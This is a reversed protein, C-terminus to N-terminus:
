EGLLARNVANRRRFSDRHGPPVHQRMAHEVWAAGAQRAAEAADLQGQNRLVEAGLRWVLPLYADAPQRGPVAALLERVLPLARAGEGARWWAQAERLRAALRFNHLGAQAARRAADACTKVAEDPPLEQALGLELSLVLPLSLRAAEQRLPALLAASPQGAHRLLLGQAMAHGIRSRADAAPEPPLVRAAAEADGLELWLGVLATRTPPLLQAAESALVQDFGELAERYRGLRWAMLSQGHRLNIEVLGQTPGSEDRWRLADLFLERAAACDGRRSTLSALNSTLVMCEAADDLQQALALAQQVADIAPEVRSVLALASGRATFCQMRLRPGGDVALEREVADLQALSEDARGAGALAHARMLALQLSTTRQAGTWARPAGAIETDMAVVAADFRYLLTLARGHAFTAQLRQAATEAREVLREARALVQAPPEVELAAEAASALAEFAGDVRGAREHADAAADFWAVAQVRANLRLAARAARESAAAAEPWCAAQRWHSAVSADAVGRKEGWAAISAHLSRAVPEPVLELVPAQLTAHAIGQADLLRAQQLLAWHEGLAVQTDGMLEHALEFPLPRGALAAIKLLQRPSEPLMAVRAQVLAHAQRPLPWAAPGPAPGRLTSGGERELLALLTQLLLLPHGLTHSLLLRAWAAADPVPLPLQKLLTAIAAEDLGTLALRVQAAALAQLPAPLHTGRTALLWRPGTTAAPLLTALLPASADDVAQADDLLIVQLGARVWAQLAERLAAQMLPLRTPSAPPEGFEPVLRALEARVGAALAPRRWQWLSRLLSQLTAFAAPETGADPLSLECLLWGAHRRQLERLLHSKGIGAEGQLWMLPQTRLVSAIQALERERGVLVDAAPSRGELAAARTADLPQGLDIQLALARLTASVAGLGSGARWAQCREFAERAGDVRGSRYLARMLVQWSSEDHPHDEILREGLALLAELQGGRECLRAEELLRKLAWASWRRRWAELELHFAARGTFDLGALLEGRPPLAAEGTATEDAPHLLPRLDHQVVPALRLLDGAAFPRVATRGSLVRLADRLNLRAKEPAEGSWMLAAVQERTFRGLAALMLVAAQREALDRWPGQPEPKWRPRGIFQVTISTADGM